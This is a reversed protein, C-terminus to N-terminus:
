VRPSQKSKKSREMSKPPQEKLVSVLNATDSEATETISKVLTGLEEIKTTLRQIEDKTPQLEKIVNDAGKDSNEAITKIAAVIAEPTHIAQDAMRKDISSLTDTHTRLSDTLATLQQQQVTTRENAANMSDRILINSEANTKAFGDMSDSVRVLGKTLELQARSLNVKSEAEDKIAAADAESKNVAIKGNNQVWLAYIGIITGLLGLLAGGYDHLFQDM